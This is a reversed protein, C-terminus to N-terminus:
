KNNLVVTTYKVMMHPHIFYDVKVANKKGSWENPGNSFCGWACTISRHEPM